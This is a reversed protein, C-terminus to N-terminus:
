DASLWQVNVVICSILMRTFLGRTDRSLCAIPMCVYAVHAGGCSVDAVHMQRASACVEPCSLRLSYHVHQKGVILQAAM